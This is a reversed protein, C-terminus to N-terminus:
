RNHLSFAAGAGMKAAGRRSYERTLEGNTHTVTVTVGGACLMKRPGGTIFM